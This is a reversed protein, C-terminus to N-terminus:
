QIQTNGSGVPGEEEGSVEGSSTNFLDGVGDEFTTDVRRVVTM